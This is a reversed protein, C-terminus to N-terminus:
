PASSRPSSPSSSRVALRAEVREVSVVPEGRREGHVGVEGLGLDILALDVQRAERQEEGLLAVEEQLVRADELEGIEAFSRTGKKLRRMPRSSSASTGIRTPAFSVPRATGVVDADEVRLRSRARSRRASSNTPRMERLTPSCDLTPPM